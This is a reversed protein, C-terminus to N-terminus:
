IPLDSAACQRSANLPRSVNRKYPPKSISFLTLGESTPESPLIRCRPSGGPRSWASEPLIRLLRIVQNRTTHILALEKALDRPNLASGSSQLPIMNRLM